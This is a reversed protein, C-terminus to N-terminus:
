DSIILNIVAFICMPIALSLSTLQWSTVLIGMFGAIGFQSASILSTASGSIHEFDKLALACSCGMSLGIGFTICLMPLMFSLVTTEAYNAVLMALSAAGIVILGIKVISKLSKYITLHAAVFNAIFAITANLGFWLGYATGSLGLQDMLIEPSLACFLYLGLMGNAAILTYKRFNKDKLIFKWRSLLKDSTDLKIHDYVPINKYTAFVILFGLLSLFYFGSRWSKTADLLIGGIIPATSAAIANIGTLMSFLVGCDKTSFNDRIIIFCLLYTGCAGIAQIIRAFFLIYIYSSFAALLSGLFFLIASYLALLRRGFRDALPGIGLQGIAVTLMFLYLSAQIFNPTENFYLSMNPIAPVFVDMGFSITIILPFLKLLCEYKSWKLKSM